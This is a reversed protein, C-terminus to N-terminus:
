KTVFGRNTWSKSTVLPDDNLFPAKNSLNWGIKPLPRAVEFPPNWWRWRRITCGAKWRSRM